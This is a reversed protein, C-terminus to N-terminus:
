AGRGARALPARRRAGHWGRPSHSARRIPPSSRGREDARTPDETGAPDDDELTWALALTPASIGAMLLWLGAEQAREVLDPAESIRVFVYLLALAVLTVIYARRWAADRPARDREDLSPYHDGRELAGITQPNVDIAVALRVRSMGHEARLVPIRNYIV